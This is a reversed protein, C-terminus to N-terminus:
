GNQNRIATVKSAPIETGGKLVVIMETGDFKAENITTYVQTTETSILSENVYSEIDFKYVGTPVPQGNVGVGSSQTAGGATDITSRYVEEGAQNQVVLTSADATAPPDAYVTVPSGDFYAPAAVRAEMGVWGALQSLGMLGMQQGLAALLDNTKVQQEVGSFTALQIAYDSSDVPNLPDQNQMQVTLMKLFTEFDSSVEKRPAASAASSTGTDNTYTTPTIEM